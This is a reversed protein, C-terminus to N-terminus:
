RTKMVVRSGTGDDKAPIVELYYAMRDKLEKVHSIVGVMRDRDHLKELATIVADLKEDDLTGFGEDLFFFGLPYRGRLQIKSSLALALSLSTLFIEGGSLTGVSRREGGNFDDRIMFVGGEAIELAYRQGTLKGLRMSADAAIDKLYEEALFTVLAKGRVLSALMDALDRRKEEVGRERELDDWRERNTKLVDLNAKATAYDGQFRKIDSELESLRSELERLEEESFTRPGIEEKLREIEGAVRVQEDRYETIRKELAEVTAAPLLAERAEDPTEFGAEVLRSSLVAGQTALEKSINAFSAELGSVRQKLGEVKARLQEEAREAEGLEDKLRAIASEVDLIGVLPDEGGTMEALAAEGSKIQEDLVKLGSEASKWDSELKALDKQGREVEDKLVREEERAKELDRSVRAYEQDKISIEARLKRVAERATDEDYSDGLAERAAKQFDELAQLVESECAKCKGEAEEQNQRSSDWRGVATQLKRYWDQLDKQCREIIDRAEQARRLNEPSGTALNPHHLSGCVPCPQGEELGRALLVAQDRLMAKEVLEGARSSLKRVLGIEEDAVALLDSGQNAEGMDPIAPERTSLEGDENFFYRSASIQALQGYVGLAESRAKETAKSKADLEARRSKLDDEVKELVTLEEIAKDVRVRQVPDVLLERQRSEFSWVQEKLRKLADEKTEVSTRKECISSELETLSRSLETRQKHLDDLEQKKKVAVQLRAKKETLLPEERDRRERALSTRKAAGRLEDEAGRLEEQVAGLNAECESRAATLRTVTDIIDKLPAARKAANLTEVHRDIEPKLADLENKRVEASKLRSFLEGLRRSEEYRSRVKSYESEAEKVQTEKEAVLDAARKIAEDSCDGLEKKSMEIADLKARSRDRRNVALRYLRNGFRDLDFIRGLMDARAAGTLRLFEDFKGQPLVVARCFESFTLGVLDEIKRTVSDTGEALVAGDEGILMAGVARVGEPDSESRRYRRRVTYRTGGLEFSFSVEVHKERQNIIGRTGSQARDVKGYLALTIADLISSKGSGTPGFVGFLGGKGLEEFDIVQPERYSNLGGFELEIPKM